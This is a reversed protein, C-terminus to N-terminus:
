EDVGMGYFSIQKTAEKIQNTFTGDHNNIYMGDKVYYDNSNM